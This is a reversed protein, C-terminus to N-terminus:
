SGPRQNESCYLAAPLFTVDDRTPPCGPCLRFQAHCLNSLVSFFFFFFFLSSAAPRSVCVCDCVYVLAPSSPLFFCCSVGTSVKSIDLHPAATSFITLYGPPGELPEWGRERPPRVRVRKFKLCGGSKKYANQLSPFFQVINTLM